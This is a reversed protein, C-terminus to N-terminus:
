LSASQSRAYNGADKLYHSLAAEIEAPELMYWEWPTLRVTYRMRVPKKVSAPRTGQWETSLALRLTETPPMGSRACAAGVIDIRLLVTKPRLAPSPCLKRPCRFVVQVKGGRTVPGEPICGCIDCKRAWMWEAFQRKTLVRAAEEISANPSLKRLLKGIASHGRVVASFPEDNALSGSSRLYVNSRVEVNSSSHTTSTTPLGCSRM